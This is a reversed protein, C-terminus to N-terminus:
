ITELNAVTAPYATRDIPAPSRGEEIWQKCADAIEPTALKEPELNYIANAVKLVIDPRETCLGQLASGFQRADAGPEEFDDSWEAGQFASDNTAPAMFAVELFQGLDAAIKASVGDLSVAKSLGDRLFLAARTALAMGQGHTPNNSCAADGVTIFRDPLTDMEGWRRLLCGDVHYPVPESVTEAEAAIKAVIPCTSRALYDVLEARDRTPYDRMYGVAALAHLGNDAPFLAVGRPMQPNPLAGIAKVGHSFADPKLRVYQTTYGVHINVFSERPGAIGFEALWDSAKTRRGTANVIFDGGITGGNRLRVGVCRRNDESLILGAVSNKVVEVNSIAQVRRLMAMDVIPRRLTVWEQGAVRAQWGTSLLVATDATMDFTGAGADLFDQKIGPFVEEMATLAAPLLTHISTGQPVGKRPEATDVLDDRELITVKDFVNAAVAACTLGAISGGIIIAHGFKHNEPNSM